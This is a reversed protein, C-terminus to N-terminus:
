GHIKQFGSYITLINNELFVKVQDHTEDFKFRQSGIAFTVNPHVRQATIRGTKIIYANTSIGTPGGFEKAQILGENLTIEGGRFVGGQITFGSGALITSYYCGQGTIEVNGSAQVKSNQMYGVKVDSTSSTINKLLLTAERVCLHVQELEDLNTLHLPGRGLLCTTLITQVQKMNESTETDTKDIFDSFEQVLKPLDYFKLELLHKILNEFPINDAQLAITQYAEILSALQDGIQQMMGLLRIQNVTSGGAFLQSRVVNKLVTISGGTRLTAGSVLGNVVIVGQKSEVKISELVNGKIIIDSDVTINGTSADADGALEFVDTVRLVGSQLSPLGAVQAIAQLGDESLTVGEGIQIELDKIPTIPIEKGFVDIGNQGPDGPTKIALVEGAEVGQIGHTEYYDIRVADLDVVPEKDQFTFKISSPQPARPERGQALLVLGSKESLVEPTITDLKLGYKLGEILILEKIKELSLVPAEKEVKELELYLQNAPPHDALTYSVASTRKWVFQAQTKDDNIVIQYQLNSERPEPLHINLNELDSSLSVKEKITQGKYTVNIEDGFHLSPALGGKPTQKAFTIQGSVVSALGLQELPLEAEKLSVRVLAPENRRGLLSSSPEQLVEVEVDDLSAGLKALADEIAKNVTRGEGLETKM